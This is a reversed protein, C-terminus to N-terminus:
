LSECKQCCAGKVKRLATRLCSCLPYQYEHRLYDFAAQIDVDPVGRERLQETVWEKRAPGMKSRSCAIEAILVGQRAIIDTPMDPTIHLEFVHLWTAQENYSLADCPPPPPLKVPPIPPRPIDYGVSASEPEM